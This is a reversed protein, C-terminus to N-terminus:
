FFIRESPSKTILCGVPTVASKIEMTNIINGRSRSFHSNDGIAVIYRMLVYIENYPENKSGLFILLISRM